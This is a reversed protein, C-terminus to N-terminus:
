ATTMTFTGAAFTTTIGPPIQQQLIKRIMGEGTSTTNVGATFTDTTVGAVTLVGAWSGGTTPLLGGDFKATVVVPDANAYGQATSTLVGPSALTCSFPLWKFNGIYDFTILNGSTLADYIGFGIITGWGIGTGGSAAFTVISGNTVSAPTVSPETGVSATAVPWASFVINDGNGVGAGTVNASITVTTGTKSLITSGAPIVTTATTDTVTMGAAVWAPVSAFTLVAVGAATAASSAIAGAVQVRAYNVGSVEVGGTGANSTPMTTFLGLFRSALAPMAAQGSEWNLVAQASYDSFGPM